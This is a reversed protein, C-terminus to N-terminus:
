HGVLANLMVSTVSESRSQFVPWTYFFQVTAFFRETLVHVLTADRPVVCRDNILNWNIPRASRHLTTGLVVSHGVRKQKYDEVSLIFSASLLEV